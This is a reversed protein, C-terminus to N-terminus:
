DDGGVDEHDSADSGSSSDSAHEVESSNDSQEVENDNSHEVHNTQHEPETQNETADDPSSNTTAPTASRVGATQAPAAAQAPLDHVVVVKEKVRVCTDGEVKWGRECPLWSTTSAAPTVEPTTVSAPRTVPGAAATAQYAVVAAATGAVTGALTWLPASLRVTTEGEQSPCGEQGLGDLM